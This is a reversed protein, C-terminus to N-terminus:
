EEKFLISAQNSFNFSPKLLNRNYVESKLKFATDISERISQFSADFDVIVGNSSNVIECNWGTPTCVVPTGSALAEITGYPGGELESLSLYCHAQRMFVGSDGLNKGAWKVNCANGINNLLYKQWKEGFVVFQIDPNLEILRSVKSPNKRAKLDGSIFVYSYKSIEKSPFFIDTAVAGYSVSIQPTNIGHRVLKEKESANMVIIESVSNLLDIESVTYNSLAAHTFFIRSNQQSSNNLLRNKCLWLYTNQNVILFSEKMFKKQNIFISLNRILSKKRTSVQVVEIKKSTYATSDRIIAGLIWNSFEKDLYIKM